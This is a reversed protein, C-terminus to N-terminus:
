RTEQHDKWVIRTERAFAPQRTLEQGQRVTSRPIENGSSVGAKGKSVVVLGRDDVGARVDLVHAPRSHGVAGAGPKSGAVHCQICRIVDVQM